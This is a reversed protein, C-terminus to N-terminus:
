IVECVWIHHLYGTDSEYDIIPPELAIQDSAMLAATIATAIPDDDVTTFRDVQIRYGVIESINDSEMTLPLYPSWITYNGSTAGKWKTIAPDVSVLLAEFEALQM